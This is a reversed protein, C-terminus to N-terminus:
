QSIKQHLMSLSVRNQAHISALKFAPVDLDELFDVDEENYPTSLFLIDLERCYDILDYHM